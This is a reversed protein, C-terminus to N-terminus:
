PSPLPRTQALASSQWLGRFKSSSMPSSSYLLCTISTTVKSDLVPRLDLSRRMAKLGHTTTLSYEYSGDATTSHTGINSRDLYALIILIAMQPLLFRDYKAMTRRELVPDIYIEDNGENISSTTVANDPHKTETVSDVPTSM